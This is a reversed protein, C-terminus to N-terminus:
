DAHIRALVSAGVVSMCKPCRNRHRMLWQDICSKHFDHGCKLVRVDENDDYDAFCIPCEADITGALLSFKSVSSENEIVSHHVGRPIDSNVLYYFIGICIVRHLVIFLYNLLLHHWVKQGLETRYPSFLNVVSSTFLWGFYFYLLFKEIRSQHIYINNLAEGVLQPTPQMRANAFKRWSALWLYPRPIAFIVRFLLLIEYFVDMSANSSASRDHTSLIYLSHCLLLSSVVIGMEIGRQM